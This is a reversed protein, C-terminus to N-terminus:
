KFRKIGEAFISLFIQRDTEDDYIEERLDGRSTVHYLADTYELRLTRVNTYPILPKHYKISRVGVDM